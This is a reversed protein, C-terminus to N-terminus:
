KSLILGFSITDNEENIYYGNVGVFKMLEYFHDCIIQLWNNKKKENWICKFRMTYTFELNLQQWQSDDKEIEIIEVNKLYDYTNLLEKICTETQRKLNVLQALNISEKAGNTLKIDECLFMDIFKDINKM